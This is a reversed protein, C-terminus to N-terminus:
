IDIGQREIDLIGRQSVLEIDYKALKASYVHHRERLRRLTANFAHTIIETRIRYRMPSGSMLQAVEEDPQFVMFDVDPFRETLHQLTSRFRTYVLAKVAQILAYVGGREDVSGPELTAYPKLPDIIFILRCGRQVPLELNCTRTVQGDIFWRGGIKSPTFFPPLACSARVAESIKLNTWPDKGFVVHEYTDQDTGGIYLDTKLSQFTDDGGFTKIVTAFYERLNEGRFIGTPVSKLVRQVWQSPDIGPWQFSQGTIRKAIDKAALDFITTSKLPPLIQSSHNVARIVELVPIKNALIAALISGSSVGSYVHFDGVSQGPMARELAHMAGLQFLFGELGGGSLALGIKESDSQQNIKLLRAIWRLISLLHTPAILVDRVHDRGLEFARHAAGPSDNLIAVARKLPFQFDPGWLEALATVDDRIRDFALLADIGDAGREDYILLDVPSQRLHPTIRDLDSLLHLQLEIKGTFKQKITYSEAFTSVDKVNEARVHSLNAKTLEIQKASAVYLINRKLV